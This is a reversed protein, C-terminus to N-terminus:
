DRETPRAAVACPIYESRSYMRFDVLIDAELGHWGCGSSSARISGSVRERESSGAIPPPATMLLSSIIM